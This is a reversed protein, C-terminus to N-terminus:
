ACIKEAQNGTRARSGIQGHDTETRERTIAFCHIAQRCGKSGICTEVRIMLVLLVSSDLIIHVEALLKTEKNRQVKTKRRSHPGVIVTDEEEKKVDEDVPEDIKMGAAGQAIAGADSNELRAEEMKVKVKALNDQEKLRKEEEAAAHAILEQHANV